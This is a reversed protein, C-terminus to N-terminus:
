AISKPVLTESEQLQIDREKNSWDNKTPTPIGWFRRM